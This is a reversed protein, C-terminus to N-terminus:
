LFVFFANQLFSVIWEMMASHQLLANRCLNKLLEAPLKLVANAFVSIGCFPLEPEQKQKKYFLFTSVIAEVGKSNSRIIIFFNSRIVPSSGAVEVKALHREVLHALDAIIPAEPRFRVM